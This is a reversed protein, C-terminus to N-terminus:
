KDMLFESRNIKLLIESFESLIDQKNKFGTGFIIGTRHITFKQKKNTFILGAFLEPELSSSLKYMQSLNKLNIKRNLNLSACFNYIKYVNRNPNSKKLFIMLKDICLDIDKMTKAGVINVKGNSFILVAITNNKMRCSLGSFRKLNYKLNFFDESEINVLDNLKIQCQFNTQACINTIKILNENIFM